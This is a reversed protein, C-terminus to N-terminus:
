GRSRRNKEVFEYIRRMEQWERLFADIKELGAEGIAFYKRRRGNHEETYTTVCGTNELRRFVPYMTSESVEMIESIDQIIKYGYSPGEALVALVLIDLLGKKRQADM